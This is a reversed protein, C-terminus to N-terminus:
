KAMPPIPAVKMFTPNVPKDIIARKICMPTFGFPEVIIDKHSVVPNEKKPFFMIFM